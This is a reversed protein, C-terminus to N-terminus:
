ASKRLVVIFFKNLLTRPSANIKFQEWIERRGAASPPKGDPAKRLSRYLARTSVLLLPIYLLPFVLLSSKSIETRQIEFGIFGAMLAMTRLQQAGVLWVHGYYVRSPDAADQGWISHAVGCPAMKMNESEFFLYSLRAALSSRNPTTLLVEGGPRLIQFMERLALLQNPLHEIVEQLVILDASAAPFGSNYIDVSLPKDDLRYHEPFLDCPTVNAGMGRLFYTTRGDGCALDIVDRGRWDKRASLVQLVNKHIGRQAVRQFPEVDSGTSQM